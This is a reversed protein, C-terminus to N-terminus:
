INAWRIFQSTIDMGREFSFKPAYGLRERAKDIRVRTKSQYLSLLAADPVHIPKSSAGNTTHNQTGGQLVRTKFSIWQEDSLLLRTARLATPVLPLGILLSSVEPIRTLSKFRYPLSSQKQKVKRHECLEKVTMAATARIGLATEYAGYFQKWIVPEAGSILFTEGVAEPRSAALILADVVDDVYVANCYGSGDDVLPVIGSRL